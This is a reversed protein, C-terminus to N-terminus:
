NEDEVYVVHKYNAHHRYATIKKPLNAQSFLIKWFKTTIQEFRIVDNRDGTTMFITFIQWSFISLTAHPECRKTQPFYIMLWFAACVSKSETSSSFHPNPLELGSTATISWKQDSRLRTSISCPWTSELTTCITKGASSFDGDIILILLSRKSNFHFWMFLVFIKVLM